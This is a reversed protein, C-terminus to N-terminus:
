TPFLLSKSGLVPVASAKNVRLRPSRPSFFFLFCACFRQRTQDSRQSPIFLEPQALSENSTSNTEAFQQSSTFTTVVFLHNTIM